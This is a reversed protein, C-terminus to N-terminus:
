PRRSGYARCGVIRAATTGCRDDTSRVAADDRPDLGGGDARRVCAHFRWRRATRRHRPRLHVPHRRGRDASRGRCRVDRTWGDSVLFYNGIRATSCACARHVPLPPRGRRARASRRSARDGLHRAAYASDVEVGPLRPSRRSTTRPSHRHGRDDRLQTRVLVRRGDVLVPGHGRPVRGRDDLGDAGSDPLPHACARHRVDAPLLRRCRLRLPGAIYSRLRASSGSARRRALIVGLALLWMWRAFWADRAAAMRM